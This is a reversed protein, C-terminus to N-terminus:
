ALLSISKMKAVKCAYDMHLIFTARQFNSIEEVKSKNIRFSINNFKCDMVYWDFMLIAHHVHTQRRCASQFQSRM